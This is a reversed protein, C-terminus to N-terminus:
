EREEDIRIREIERNVDEWESKARRYRWLLFDDIEVQFDFYDDDDGSIFFAEKYRTEFKVSRKM